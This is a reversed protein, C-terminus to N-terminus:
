GASVGRLRRWGFLTLATLLIVAVVVAALDLPRDFLTGVREWLPRWCVVVVAAGLCLSPGFPLESERRRCFQVVGHGLGIFVGLCCALLGAQWGLWSGVMAMLTVDGFGLAERGLARSAGVRTAWVIGAAVALGGLAAALGLWHRGGAVWAAGVIGATAFLPALRRASPLPLGARAVEPERGEDTGFWWWTAVLVLAIVLGPVGDLWPAPLGAGLPGGLGLVDAEVAPPAYSRAVERGVPLLSGPFTANWALGALVGPVTLADPVVRDRMDVWAAAALLTGLLLYAVYRGLVSGFPETITLPAQGRACVVWWWLTAAAAAAVVPVSVQMFAGDHPRPETLRRGVVVVLRGLAAGAVVVAFWSWPGACPTAYGDAAPNV